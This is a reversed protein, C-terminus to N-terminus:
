ARSHPIVRLMMVYPNLCTYLLCHFANGLGWDGSRWNYAWGSGAHAIAVDQGVIGLAICGVLRVPM